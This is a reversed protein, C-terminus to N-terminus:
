LAGSADAVEMCKLLRRRLTRQTRVVGSFVSSPGGPPGCRAALELFEKKDTLM